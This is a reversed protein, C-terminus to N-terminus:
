YRYKNYINIGFSIKIKKSNDKIPLCNKIKQWKFFQQKEITENEIKWKIKGTYLVIPIVSPISKYKNELWFLIYHNVWWHNLFLLIDKLILIVYYMVTSLLNLIM